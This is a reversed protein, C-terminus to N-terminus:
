KGILMVRASYMRSTLSSTNFCSRSIGMRLGPMFVAAEAAMGEIM